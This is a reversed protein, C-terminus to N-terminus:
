RAGFALARILLSYISFVRPRFNYNTRKRSLGVLSDTTITLTKLVNEIKLNAPIPRIESSSAIVACACFASGFSGLFASRPASSIQSAGV